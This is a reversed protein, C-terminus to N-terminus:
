HSSGDTSVVEQRDPGDFLTGAECLPLRFSSEAAVWIASKRLFYIIAPISVIALAVLLLLTPSQWDLQWGIHRRYRNMADLVVFVITAPIGVM